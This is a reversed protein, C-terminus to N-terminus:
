LNSNSWFVTMGYQNTVKFGKLPREPELPPSAGVTTRCLSRSVYFILMKGYRAHCNQGEQIQIWVEIRIWQDWKIRIGDPDPFM